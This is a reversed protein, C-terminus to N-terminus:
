ELVKGGGTPDRGLYRKGELEAIHFETRRNQAKGDETANDAVPKSEGFGVALLRAADVGNDVLWKKCTLARRASLDLNNADSGVNDTHGEIRLKTVRPNEELFQKLQQLVEESGAGTKFTDKGTDFVINGPISVKGDKVTANSKKVEAPAPAPEAAPEATAAPAPEAAPPPPPPPPQEEGGTKTSAQFTCGTVASAAFAALVIIYAASHRVM